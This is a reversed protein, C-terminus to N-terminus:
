LARVFAILEDVDAATTAWSTVFRLVPRGQVYSSGGSRLRRFIANAVPRTAWFFQQNGPTVAYPELGAEVLGEALKVACANANAAHRLYPLVGDEDPTFAAEYQVGMLRGKATM